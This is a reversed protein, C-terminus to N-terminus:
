RELRERWRRAFDRRGYVLAVIAVRDAHVESMLHDDRVFIERRREDGLQPV